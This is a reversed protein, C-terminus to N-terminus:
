VQKRSGEKKVLDRGRERAKGQRALLQDERCLDTDTTNCCM